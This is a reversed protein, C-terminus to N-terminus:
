RDEETQEDITALADGLLSWLERAESVSVEMGATDVRTRLRTDCYRGYPDSYTVIEVQVGNM